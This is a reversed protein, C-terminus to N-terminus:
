AFDFIQHVLDTVDFEDLEGPPVTPFAFLLRFYENRLKERRATLWERAEEITNFVQSGKLTNCACCSAYLNKPSSGGGKSRPYFHDINAMAFTDVDGLLDRGCYTCTTGYRLFKAAKRMEKSFRPRDANYIEPPFKNVCIM